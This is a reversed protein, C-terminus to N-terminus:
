KVIIRGLTALGAGVIAMVLAFAIAHRQHPPLIGPHRFHEEVRTLTLTKRELLAKDSVGDDGGILLKISPALHRKVGEYFTEVSQRVIHDLQHRNFWLSQREANYARLLDPLAEEIAEYAIRLIELRVATSGLGSFQVAQKHADKIIRESVKFDAREIIQGASLKLRRQANTINM